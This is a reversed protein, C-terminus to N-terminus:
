AGTQEGTTSPADGGLARLCFSWLRDSTSAPPEDSAAFARHHFTTMVLQTIHWADREPDPSRLSGRETGAVIEPVLMEAFRRNAATLEDPFIELLRYHESTTFRRMTTQDDDDFDELAATVYFRLREVPDDSADAAQAMMRECGTVISDELVALLLEDKSAFYRYFTQLAIGAEKVLQQITFSHEGREILRRAAVVIEAAHDMTRLRSRQVAPSRDAVREAWSM